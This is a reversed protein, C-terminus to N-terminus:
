NPYNLDIWCQIMNLDEDSITFPGSNSPWDPPMGLQPDDKIDIVYFEFLSENLFSLMGEYSTFDGPADSFEVHCGAFACYLDILPKIDGTYKISEEDCDENVMPQPLKDNTCALTSFIVVLLFLNQICNRM